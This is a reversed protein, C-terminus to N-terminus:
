LGLKESVEVLESVIQGVLDREHSDMLVLGSERMQERRADMDPKASGGPYVISLVKRARAPGIREYLKNRVATDEATTSFAWLEIPGLTASLLMTYTGQNTEFRSLFVGGGKGPLRLGNRLAWKETESSLSFRKEISDITIESGANMIYLSTCFEVMRETFDELSQSALIIDVRFKRGERMDLEVQDRVATAKSTRHFEDYCIRKPDKSIQEIRQLHYAKYAEIPTTERLLDLGQPAPMDAVNEKDLYFDKALVQRALMYMVSTVRDGVVGGGSAVEGLDLAVVRADGLDFATPRTLIPFFGMADSIIRSFASILTQNSGPITADGYRARIKESQAVTVADPLLPVAYRQAISAIHYEERKFMEDVVEWWTSKADLQINYTRLAEDVRPSVGRTYRNPENKDSRLRYMEDIIASVLGPLGEPPTPQSFDTGLLTLFNRLFSLEMPTPFRCGLQTDFPNIAHEEVQRLRKHVAMHRLRPPLAEKILSILGSSSPGVDIIAIRPLSQNGDLLCLALNQMNMLVSKGAGPKAFILAIWTSQQKSYPEFPILKGDPTRYLVPGREWPSSPRAWPLIAMADSIPAIAKTAISGQTMALATSMFGAVPDGTAESVQCSGWSEVARALDSARRRLLELDGRPAWTCLAVRLKVNIGSAEEQFKQLETISRAMMKNDSSAWGMIQAILKRAATGSMGGGEVLFSIRWPLSAARAKAFLTMFYKLDRPFLDIYLPAYIRDGLEVVNADVINADRSCVQWSLPPALVEWEESTTRRGRVTPYAVDGPLAPSWGESTFSPDVSRRVERLADRAGLPVVEVQMRSLESIFNDVFGAHRARLMAVGKLPDQMNRTYALNKVQKNKSEKELKQESKALAGRRTWIAVYCRESTVWKTLNREREDLLDSLELELARATERAPRQADAIEEATRDPDVEFWIQMQQASTEFSGQIAQTLPIAIRHFVDSGGMISRVGRLQLVTILSGDKSVLVREDDVTELDCYDTIGQKVFGGLNDLLSDIGDIIGTFLAM